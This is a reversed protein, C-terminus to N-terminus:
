RRRRAREPRVGPQLGGPEDPRDGHEPMCTSIWRTASRSTSDSATSTSPSGKRRARCRRHRSATISSRRSIRIARHPISISAARGARETGARSGAHHYRERTLDDGNLVNTERRYRTATSARASCRRPASSRSRRCNPPRRPPRNRPRRHRPRRPTTTTRPRLATTGRRRGAHDGRRLALGARM